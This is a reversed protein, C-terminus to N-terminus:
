RTCAASLMTLRRPWPACRAGSCKGTWGTCGCGCHSTAAPDNLTTPSASPRSRKPTNNYIEAGDTLLSGVLSRADAGTAALLSRIGNRELAAAAKGIREDSALQAFEASVAADPHAAVQQDTV